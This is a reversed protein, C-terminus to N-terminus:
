GLVNTGVEEAMVEEATMGVEMVGMMEVAGV